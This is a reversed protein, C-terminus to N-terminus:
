YIQEFGGCHLITVVLLILMAVCMLVSQIVDTWISARIGGSFCYLAVIVGAVVIGWNYDWGLMSYLAKSSVKLQAAAYISLFVFSIISAVKIVAIRSKKECSAVFSTITNLNREKSKIRLRKHITFWAILDGLAWTVLYWISSVGNTYTYGIYGIFMFGSYNTSLMSLAMVWPNVKRGALLYDESNAEAEKSSIVGVAIM